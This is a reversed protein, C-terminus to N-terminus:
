IRYKPYSLTPSLILFELRSGLSFNRIQRGYSSYLFARFLPASIARCWQVGICRSVVTGGVRGGLLPFYSIAHNGTRFVLPSVLVDPTCTGPLIYIGYNRLEGGVLVCVPQEEGRVGFFGRRLCVHPSRKSSWIPHFETSSYYPPIYAGWKIFPVAALLLLGQATPETQRQEMHPHQCANPAGTVVRSQLTVGFM